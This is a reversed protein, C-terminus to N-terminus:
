SAVRELMQETKIKAVLNSLLAVRAKQFSNATDNNVVPNALENEFDNLLALTEDDININM